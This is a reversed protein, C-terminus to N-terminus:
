SEMDKLKKKLEIMTLERGVMLSNMKKLEELKDELDKTKEKIKDELGTYSIKLEKAMENFSKSMEGIEDNSNVDSQVEFNGEKIGLMAEHLRKIPAVISRAVLVGFTAMLLGGAVLVIVITMLMKQAPAMAESSDIKTILCSKIEPIWHYYGFVNDGNYDPLNYSDSKGELCSTIQPLYVTKKMSAGPQKLLDNVVVNFSNVLFTEGTAGLGSRQSMLNGISDVNIKGVLEGIFVGQDDKIPTGVVMSPRKDVLDYLYDQVFTKEQSNLFYQETSKIKGEDTANSSYVVVGNGDLIMLDSFIKKYRLLDQARNAIIKKDERDGSKLYSLFYPRVTGRNNMFEIESVVEGLFEHINKEKLLSISKMQVYTQDRFIGSLLYFSTLGSLLIVLIVSIEISFIIKSGIGIKMENIYQRLLNCRFLMPM